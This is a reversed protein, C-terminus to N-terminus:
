ATRTATRRSPKFMHLTERKACRQGITILVEDSLCDSYTMLSRLTPLAVEAPIVANNSWLDLRELQPCHTLIIALQARSSVVETLSLHTFKTLKKTLLVLCEGWDEVQEDRVVVTQIQSCRTAIELLTEPPPLVRGSGCSPESGLTSRTSGL